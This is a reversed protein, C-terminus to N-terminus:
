AYSDECLLSKNLYIQASSIGGRPNTIPYNDVVWYVQSLQLIGAATRFASAIHTLHDCQRATNGKSSTKIQRQTAAKESTQVCM